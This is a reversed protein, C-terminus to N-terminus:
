ILTGDESFVCASDTLLDEIFLDSYVHEERDRIICALASQMDTRIRERIREYTSEWPENFLMEHLAKGKNSNVYNATGMVRALRNKTSNTLYKSLKENYLLDSYIVGLDADFSVKCIGKYPDTVKVSMNYIVDNKIHKRLYMPIYDYDVISGDNVADLINDLFSEFCTKLIDEHKDRFYEIANKQADESLEHYQYTRENRM